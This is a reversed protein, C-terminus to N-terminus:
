IPSFIVTHLQLLNQVWIICLGFFGVTMESFCPAFVQTDSCFCVVAIGGASLMVSLYAFWRLWGRAQGWILFSIVAECM